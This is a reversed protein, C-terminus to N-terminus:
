KEFVHRHLAEALRLFDALKDEEHARVGAWEHGRVRDIHVAAAAPASHQEGSMGACAPIWNPGWKRPSSRILGRGWAAALEGSVRRRRLGGHRCAGAAGAK